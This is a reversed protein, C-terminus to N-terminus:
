FKIFESYDDTIGLENLFADIDLQDHDEASVLAFGNAGDKQVNFAVNATFGFLNKQDDATGAQEIGAKMTTPDEICTDIYSDIDDLFGNFYSKNKNYMTDNVFLGAQPIVPALGTVEAWKDKLCYIVNYISADEATSLVSFLVPQAVLVYDVSDGNFLGTKLVAGADSVASVYHTADLIGQSDAYIHKYVVDPLLNEGFSVILDDATPESDKNIGVLYLNGGTIIRRLSYDGSNKKVSKLGNLFDFVIAGYKDDQLQASVVTPAGTEFNSNTAYDYFVVTPAGSPCIIKKYDENVETKCGTLLMATLAVAFITKKNM